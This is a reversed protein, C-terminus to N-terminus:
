EGRQAHAGSGFAYLTKATRVYLRDGVLAPTAAVREHFDVTRIVEPMATGAKLVSMKGDLSTLFIRGDAAVPSAYYNGAVPIREQQWISDGTKADFCSVIGGDKMLYIRGKYFLPSSVYPLGKTAKWAIQADEVQGKCGPKVAVLV